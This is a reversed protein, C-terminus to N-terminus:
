EIKVQMNYLIIVLISMRLSLVIAVTSFRMNLTVAAPM